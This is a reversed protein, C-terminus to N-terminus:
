PGAPKPAPPCLNAANQPEGAEDIEWVDGAMEAKGTARARFHKADAALLTYGYWKAALDSADLDALKGTFADHEIQWSREMVFLM